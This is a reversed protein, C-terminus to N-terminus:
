VFSANVSIRRWCWLIFLYFFTSSCSTKAFLYWFLSDHTNIRPKPSSQTSVFELFLKEDSKQKERCSSLPRISAANVLTSIHLRSQRFKEDFNFKWKRDKWVSSYKRQFDVSRHAVCLLYFSLFFCYFYHNKPIWVAFM